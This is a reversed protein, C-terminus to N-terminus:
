APTSLNLYYTEAPDYGDRPKRSIAGSNPDRYYTSQVLGGRVLFPTTSYRMGDETVGCTDPNNKWYGVIQDRIGTGGDNVIFKGGGKRDDCVVTLSVFTTPQGDRTYDGESERAELIIFPVDV